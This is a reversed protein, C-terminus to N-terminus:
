SLVRVILLAVGPILLLLSFKAEVPKIDEEDSFAVLYGASLGALYLSALSM